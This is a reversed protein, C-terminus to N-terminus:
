GNCTRGDGDRRQETKWTAGHGVIWNEVSRPLVQGGRIVWSQLFVRQGVLVDCIDVEVEVLGGHSRDEGRGVQEDEQHAHDAVPHHAEDHQAALVHAGDGVQENEVEGDTVQQNADKAHWRRQHVVDYCTLILLSRNANQLITEWESM